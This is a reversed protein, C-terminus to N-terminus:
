TAQFYVISKINSWPILYKRFAPGEIDGDGDTFWVGYSDVEVVGFFRSAYPHVDRTQVEIGGILYEQSLRQNLEKRIVTSFLHKSNRWILDVLTYPSRNKKIYSELNPAAM